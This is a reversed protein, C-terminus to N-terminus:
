TGRLKRLAKTFEGDAIVVIENQPRPTFVVWKGKKHINRGPVDKAGTHAQIMRYVIGAFWYCQSKRVSYNPAIGHVVKLLTALEPVSMQRNDDTITLTCLVDYSGFEPSLLSDLKARAGHVPVFVRYLAPVTGGGIQGAIANFREIGLRFRNSPSLSRYSSRSSISTLSTFSSNRPTNPDPPVVNDAPVRDIALNAERTTKKQTVSIRTRVFEHEMSDHAKCFEVYTLQTTEPPPPEEDFVASSWYYSDPVSKKDPFLYPQNPTNHAMLSKILDTLHSFPRFPM